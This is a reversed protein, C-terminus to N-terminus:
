SLWRKLVGGSAAAAPELVDLAFAASAKHCTVDLTRLHTNHPLAALLPALAEDRLSCFSVDLVTLVPSNAVVLAALAAGVEEDVGDACEDSGLSITRLTPHAVLAGLLGVDMSAQGRKWLHRGSLFLHQLTNCARVGSTLADLLPASIEPDDHLWGAPSLIELSELAGERLLRALMPCSGVALFCAHLGLRKLRNTLAADVLAAMAAVDLPAGILVLVELSTCAAATSCFTPWPELPTRRDCVMHISRLALARFPPECRLLPPLDAFPDAGRHGHAHFSLGCELLTLAPLECALERVDELGLLCFGIHQNHSYLHLERLSAASAALARLLEPVSRLTDAPYSPLTAVLCSLQGGARLVAARLLAETLPADLRAADSVDLTTWLSTDALIRRWSPSVEACRMRTDVPVARFIARKLAVPLADFTLQEAMGGVRYTPVLM